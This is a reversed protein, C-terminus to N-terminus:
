RTSMFNEMLVIGPFIFLPFGAIIGIAYLINVTLSFDNKPLSLIVTEPFKDGRYAMVSTFSVMVFLAGTYMVLRKMVGALLSRNKMSDRLNFIISMIEYAFLAIGFVTPLNILDVKILM